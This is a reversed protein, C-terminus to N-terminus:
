VIRIVSCALSMNQRLRRCDFDAAIITSSASLGYRVFAQRGASILLGQRSLGVVREFPGVGFGGKWSTMSTPLAM